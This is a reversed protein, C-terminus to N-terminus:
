SKQCRAPNQPLPSLSRIRVLDSNGFGSRRPGNGPQGGFQGQLEIGEIVQEDGRTVRRAGADVVVDKFHIQKEANETM